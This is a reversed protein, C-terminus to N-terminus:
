DCNDGNESVLTVHSRRSSLEIESLYKKPVKKAATGVVGILLLGYTLLSQATAVSPFFLWWFCNQKIRDLAWGISALCCNRSFARSCINKSKRNKVSTVARLCTMIGSATCCTSRIECGNEPKRDLTVYNSLGLSSYDGGLEYWHFTSEDVCIKEFPSSIAM